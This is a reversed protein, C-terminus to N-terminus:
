KEQYYVLIYLHVLHLLLKLHSDKIHLHRSQSHQKEGTDEIHPSQSLFLAFTHCLPIPNVKLSPPKNFFFKTVTNFFYLNSPSVYGLFINTSVSVPTADSLKCPTTALSSTLLFKTNFIGKLASSYSILLNM